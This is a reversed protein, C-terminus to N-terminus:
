DGLRWSFSLYNSNVPIKEEHDTICVGYRHDTICVGNTYKLTGISGVLVREVMDQQFSEGKAISLQIAAARREFTVLNTNDGDPSATIFCFNERCWDFSQQKEVPIFSHLEFWINNDLSYDSNEYWDPDLCYLASNKALL